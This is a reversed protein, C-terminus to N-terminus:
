LKAARRKIINEDVHISYEEYTTGVMRGAEECYFYVFHPFMMSDCYEKISIENNDLKKLLQPKKNFDYGYNKHRTFM